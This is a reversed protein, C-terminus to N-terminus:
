QRRFRRLDHACFDDRRDNHALAEGDFGARDDAGVGDDAVAAVNAVAGLHAAAHQVAAYIDAVPGGEGAREYTM